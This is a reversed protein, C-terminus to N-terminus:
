FNDLKGISTLDSQSQRYDSGSTADGSSFKPSYILIVQGAIAFLGAMRDSSYNSSGYSPEEKRTEHGQDFGFSSTYQRCFGGCWVCCDLRSLFM